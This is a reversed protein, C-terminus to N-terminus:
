EKPSEKLLESNGDSDSLSNGDNGGGGGGALAVQQAKQPLEVERRIGKPTETLKAAVAAAAATAAAADAAKRARARAVGEKLAARQEDDM